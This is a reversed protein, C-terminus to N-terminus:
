GVPLKLKLNSGLRRHFSAARTPNVERLGLAESLNAFLHTLFGGLVQLPKPPRSRDDAVQQHKLRVLAPLRMDVGQYM